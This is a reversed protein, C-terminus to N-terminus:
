SKGDFTEKTDIVTLKMHKRDIIFQTNQRAFYTDPFIKQAEELLVSVDKYRVSMHGILLYRAGISLSARAAEVATSHGTLATIASESASYTAEHYLVDVTGTLEKLSEIYRTDTCYAYRLAEPLPLTLEDNSVVVGEESVWDKGKKIGPIDCSPINYERIKLPNVNKLPFVEEFVFGQCPVTHLLPFTYVRATDATHVLYKQGMDLRVRHIPYSFPCDCNKYFFFEVLDVVRPPAFLFLERERKMLDLSSLLGLLGFFHDGHAHSIFIADLKSFSHKNRRIQMQTGEGCDILFNKNGIQLWQATPFLHATPTASSSGLITIKLSM